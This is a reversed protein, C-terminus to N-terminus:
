GFLCRLEVLWPFCRRRWGILDVWGCRFHCVFSASSRSFGVGFRFRGGSRSWRKWSHGFFGSMWEVMLSEGSIWARCHWILVAMIGFVWFVWFSFSHSPPLLSVFFFFFFISPVVSSSLMIFDGAVWFPFWIQSKSQFITFSLVM